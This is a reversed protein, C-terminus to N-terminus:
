FLFLFFGDCAVIITLLSPDRWVITAAHLSLLLFRRSAVTAPCWPSQLLVACHCRSLSSARTAGWNSLCSHTLYCLYRPHHGHRLVHKLRCLWPKRRPKDHCCKCLGTLFNAFSDDLPYPLCHNTNPQMDDYQQPMQQPHTQHTM